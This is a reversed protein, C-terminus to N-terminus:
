VSEGTDELRVDTAGAKELIARAQDAGDPTDCVVTVLTEGLAVDDEVDAYEDEKFIRARGALWGIATFALLVAAGGAAIGAPNRQIPEGGAVVYGVIVFLALMAGALAGQPSYSGAVERAQRINESVVGVRDPPMGAQELMRVGRRAAAHEAFAGVITQAGVMGSTDVVRAM